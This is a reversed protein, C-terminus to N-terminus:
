RGLPSSYSKGDITVIDFTGHLTRVGNKYGHVHLGFDPGRREPPRSDYLPPSMPWIALREYDVSNLEIFTEM